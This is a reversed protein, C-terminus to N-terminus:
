TLVKKYIDMCPIHTKNCVFAKTLPQYFDINYYNDNEKRLITPTIGRSLMSTQILLQITNKIFEILYHYRSINCLLRLQLLQHSHLGIDTNMIAKAIYLSNRRVHQLLKSVATTSNYLKWNSTSTVCTSLCTNCTPQYWFQLM